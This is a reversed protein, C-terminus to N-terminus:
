DIQGPAPLLEAFAGENDVGFARLRLLIGTGPDELTIHGDARRAVQFPGDADARHLMRERAMTRLVGRIFGGETPELVRVIDDNALDRVALTGDDRSEFRLDRSESVATLPIQEPDYGTIRAIAIMLIISGLLIAVAILVGRPFPREGFPDSM